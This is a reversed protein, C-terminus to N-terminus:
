VWCGKKKLKQSEKMHMQRLSVTQFYNENIFLFPM